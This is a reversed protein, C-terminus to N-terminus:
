NRRMVEKEGRQGVGGDLRHRYDNETAGWRSMAYGAAWPPRLTVGQNDQKRLQEKRRRM